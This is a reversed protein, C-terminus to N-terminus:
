PRDWQALHLLVGSPDWVHTVTAGYPQAKPPAVRAGPFGGSALVQAVHRHWAQADAVSLHLMCNDAWDKVHYAQLYFRCDGLEFLALQEDAYGERWGLAAYFRRSLAFDQAPVFPRLDSVSLNMAM